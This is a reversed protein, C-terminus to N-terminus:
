RRRQREMYDLLECDAEHYTPASLIECRRVADRQAAQTPFTMSEGCFPCPHGMAILRSAALVDRAPDDERLVGGLYSTQAGDPWELDLLEVDGFTYSSTIRAVPQGTM